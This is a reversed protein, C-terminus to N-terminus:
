SRVYLIPGNMIGICSKMKKELSKFEDENLKRVASLSGLMTELLSQIQQEKKEDEEETEPLFPIIKENIVAEQLM